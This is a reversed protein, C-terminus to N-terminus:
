EGLVNKISNAVQLGQRQQGEKKFSVSGPKQDEPNNRSLSYQDDLKVAPHKEIVELAAQNYIVEDGAVRSKASDPIITTSAWILSEASKELKSVIQELNNAYQEVMVRNPPTEGSETKKRRKLDNMGWNFHIVKWHSGALWKELNKLASKTDGGSAPIRYVNALGALEERVSPTYGVSIPGGMLLVNPLSPDAKVFAFAPQKLQKKKLSSTWLEQDTYITKESSLAAPKQNKVEPAATVTGATSEM